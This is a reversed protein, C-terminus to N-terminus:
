KKVRRLVTLNVNSMKPSEFATPRATGPNASGIKLTDGNLKYTGQFTASARAVVDYILDITPPDAKADIVYATSSIDWPKGDRISTWRGDATFM